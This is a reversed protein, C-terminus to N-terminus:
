RCCCCCCCANFRCVHALNQHHPCYSLPDNSSISITYVLCLCVSSLTDVECVLFRRRFFFLLKDKTWFTSSLYVVCKWRKQKKCWAVWIDFHRSTNKKKKKRENFKFDFSDIKNTVIFFNGSKVRQAFFISTIFFLQKNRRRRCALM